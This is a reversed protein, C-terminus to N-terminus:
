ELPGGCRGCRSGRAECGCRPCTDPGFSIGEQVAVGTFSRAALLGATPHSRPADFGNVLWPVSRGVIQAIRSLESETFESQDIQGLELLDLRGRDIQALEALQRRKAGLKERAQRVRNGFERNKRM